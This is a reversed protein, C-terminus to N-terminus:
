DKEGVEKEKEVEGDCYDQETEYEVVLLIFNTEAERLEMDGVM